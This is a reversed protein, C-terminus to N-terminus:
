LGTVFGPRRWRYNRTGMESGDGACGSGASRHLPASSPKLLPLSPIIYETKLQPQLSYESLQGRLFIVQIYCAPQYFLKHSPFM